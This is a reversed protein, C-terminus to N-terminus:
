VFNPLSRVANSRARWSSRPFHFISRTHKAPKMRNSLASKMPGDAWARAHEDTDFLYINEAVHEVDDYGWLKWELGPLTAIREAAALFDRAQEPDHQGLQRGYRVVLLKM